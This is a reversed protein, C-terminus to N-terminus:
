DGRKLLRTEGLQTYPRQGGTEEARVSPSKPPRGGDEWPHHCRRDHEAPRHGRIPNEQHTQLVGRICVLDGHSLSHVARTRRAHHFTMDRRSYNKEKRVM